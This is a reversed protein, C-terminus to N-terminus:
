HVHKDGWNFLKSKQLCCSKHKIKFKAEGQYVSTGGVDVARGGARLINLPPMTGHGGGKQGQRKTLVFLILSASHCFYAKYSIALPPDLPIPYLTHMREGAIKSFTKSTHLKEMIKFKKSQLFGQAMHARMILFTRVFHMM